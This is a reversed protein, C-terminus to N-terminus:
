EGGDLREVMGKVHWLVEYQAQAKLISTAYLNAQMTEPDFMERALITAATDMAARLAAMKDNLIGLIEDRM